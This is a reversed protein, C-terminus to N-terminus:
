ESLRVSALDTRGVFAKLNFGTYDDSIAAIEAVFYPIVLPAEALMIRQLEHYADIREQEDRTTGATEILDDVEENCYRAENWKAGCAVMVDFYFQPVPRSGWTTIGFNVDLWTNDGYYASEPEIIVNIDFGADELQQEVIVALDPRDVSNPAYLDLSLGDAYGAEALLERAREPNREPIELDLYYRDYLPGIPSDQGLAGRGSRLVEFIEARNVALKFAEIVRPDDGPPQDTRMRIINFSNTPTTVANIDSERELTEFLPLPMNYVADVQGGRIASVSANQDSFFLFELTALGPKGEMFYDPNAELDMGAEARYDVVRFPGTGNFATEPSEVGEKLVLAHNDTLDYLFFPNTETLTFTVELDGTAEITDINNYLDATPLDTDPDRLRDFTWVVDQARLSSGDHFTVGEALTFTYTLGDESITWDQALRPTIENNADIDVLYDYVANLIAIEPDLSAFAPDLQVPVDTAVRLNGEQAVAFTTVFLTTVFALLLAVLASRPLFAQLTKM